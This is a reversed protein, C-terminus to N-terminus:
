TLIKINIRLFIIDDQARLVVPGASTAQPLLYVLNRGHPLRHRQFLWLQVADIM